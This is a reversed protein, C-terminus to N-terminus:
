RGRLQGPLEVGPGGFVSRGSRARVAEAVPARADWVKVTGHSDGSAIRTGDPSFSVSSVHGTHGRLTMLDRHCRRNWYHWEFGRFDYGGTGEPSTADLRDLVQEIALIEWDRQALNMQACYYSRYARRSEQEAEQRRAEVDARADEAEQGRREAEIRADEAQSRLETQTWANEAENLAVLPGGIGLTLLLLAVSAWLGALVPKCLCWRWARAPGSLPRAQIPEGNCFRELEDWLEQASAYRRGSEKETDFETDFETDRGSTLVMTKGTAQLETWYM